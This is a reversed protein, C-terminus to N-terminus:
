KKKGNGVDGVGCFNANFFVDEFKEFRFLEGHDIDLNGFLYEKVKNQLTNIDSKSRNIWRHIESIESQRGHQINQIINEENFPKGKNERSNKDIYLLIYGQIYIFIVRILVIVTILQLLRFLQLVNGIIMPELFTGVKYPNIKRIKWINLLFGIKSM